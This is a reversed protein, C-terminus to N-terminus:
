KEGSLMFEISTILNEGMQAISFDQTNKHAITICGMIYTQIKGSRAYLGFPSISETTYIDAEYTFDLSSGFTDTDELIVGDVAIGWLTLGYNEIHYDRQNEIDLFLADGLLTNHEESTFSKKQILPNYHLFTHPVVIDGVEHQSSVSFGFFPLILLDPAFIELTRDIGQADFWVASYICIWSRKRYVKLTDTTNMSDKELQLTEILSDSLRSEHTLILVLM